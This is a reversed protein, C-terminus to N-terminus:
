SKFHKLPLRISLGAHHWALLAADREEQNTRGPLNPVFSALERHSIKRGPGDWFKRLPAVEFVLIGHYRLMEVLKRATEHNRGVDRGMASAKQRGDSRSLHWNSQNLYGAEVFVLPDYGYEIRLNVESIVKSILESFPLSTLSMVMTKPDLCALGSRETDPDIAYIYRPKM